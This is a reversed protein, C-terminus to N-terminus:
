KIKFKFIRQKNKKQQIRIFSRKQIKMLFIEINISSFEAFFLVKWVFLPVCLLYAAAVVVDGGVVDGVVVAVDSGVYVVVVVVVGGGVCVVGVGM